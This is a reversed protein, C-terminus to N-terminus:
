AGGKRHSEWDFVVMKGGGERLRDIVRDGLVKRISPGNESEVPYNSLVITPRVDEYRGNIVDFLILREADSDFQVGVEDLILLDLKILERIVESETQEAKKNWTDKVRGVLERVSMFAATRGAKIVQNAVANALHTKGTGTKGTFILSQGSELVSDFDDAYQKATKKARQQGVSDAVYNEFTRTQFRRPIGARKMAGAQRRRQREEEAAQHEEAAQKDIKEQTCAPCGVIVVRDGLRSFPNEVQKEDYDGHKECTKRTATESDVM